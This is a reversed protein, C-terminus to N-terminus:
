GWARGDRSGPITKSRGPPRSYLSKLGPAVSVVFGGTAIGALGGGYTGLSPRGTSAASGGVRPRAALDGSIRTLGGEWMSSVEEMGTVPAPATLTSDEVFDDYEFALSSGGASLDGIAGLLRVCKMTRSIPSCVRWSGRRGARASQIRRRGATGALRRALGGGRGHARLAPATDHETLVAEKFRFLGPLDLEFVHVGPPWDLRFARADLGAALLVVQRCGM